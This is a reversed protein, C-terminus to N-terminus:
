KQYFPFEYAGDPSTVKQEMQLIIAQAFAVFPMSILLLPVFLKKLNCKKM